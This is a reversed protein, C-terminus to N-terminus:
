SAAAHPQSAMTNNCDICQCDCHLPLRTSEANSKAHMYWSDLSRSLLASFRYAHVQDVMASVNNVIGCNALLVTPTSNSCCLTGSAGFLAKDLILTACRERAADSIEFGLLSDTRECIPHQPEKLNLQTVKTATERRCM